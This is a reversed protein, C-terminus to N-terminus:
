VGGDLTHPACTKSLVSCSGKTRSGGAAADSPAQPSYLIEPEM